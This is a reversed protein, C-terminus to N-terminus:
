HPVFTLMFSPPCMCILVYMPSHCAITPVFLSWCMCILVCLHPPRVLPSFSPSFWLAFLALFMPSFSLSIVTRHHHSCHCLHCHPCLFAVVCCCCSMIEM